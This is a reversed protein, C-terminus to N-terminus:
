LDVNDKKVAPILQKATVGRALLEREWMARMEPTCHELANGWTPDVGHVIKFAVGYYLSQANHPLEPEHKTACEQCRDKPPPLLMMTGNSM